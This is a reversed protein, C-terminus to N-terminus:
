EAEIYFISVPLVGYQPIQYHDLLMFEFLFIMSFKIGIIM